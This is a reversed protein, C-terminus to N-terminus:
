FEDAFGAQGSKGGSFGTGDVPLANLGATVLLDVVSGVAGAVLTMGGAVAVVGAAGAAIGGNITSNLIEDGTGGNIATTAGSAVAGVVATCIPYLYLPITGSPDIKNIPDNNVYAYLNTSRGKFGIPDREVWRGM